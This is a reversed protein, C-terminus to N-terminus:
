LRIKKHEGEIGMSKWLEIPISRNNYAMMKIENFEEPNPDNTGLYKYFININRMQNNTLTLENMFYDMKEGLSYFLNDFHLVISKETSTREVRETKPNYQLVGYKGNLFAVCWHSNEPANRNFYTMRMLECLVDQFTDLDLAELFQMDTIHGITEQGPLVFQIINTTNNITPPINGIKKEISKLHDSLEVQNKNFHIMLDNITKLDNKNCV